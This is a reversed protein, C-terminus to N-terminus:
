YVIVHRLWPVFVSCQKFNCVSIVHLPSNVVYLSLISINFCYASKVLLHKKVIAIEKLIELKAHMILLFNQVDQVDGRM